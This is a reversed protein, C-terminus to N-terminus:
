MVYYYLVVKKFVLRKGWGECISGFEGKLGGFVCVGGISMVDRGVKELEM